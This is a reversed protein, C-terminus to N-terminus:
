NMHIKILRKISEELPEEPLIYKVIYDVIDYCLTGKYRVFIENCVDRYLALNSIQNRIFQQFIKTYLFASFYEINTNVLYIFNREVDENMMDFHVKYSGPDLCYLKNACIFNELTFDAVSVFHEGLYMLEQQIKSFEELFQNGLLQYIDRSEEVFSSIIYGKICHKKDCVASDPLLLRQTTLQSLYNCEKLSLVSKRPYVHYLKLVKRGYKYVVGEYGQGVKELHQPFIRVKKDGIRYEM